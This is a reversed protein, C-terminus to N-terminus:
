LAYTPREVGPFRLSLPLAPCLPRCPRVCDRRLGRSPQPPPRSCAARWLRGEDPSRDPRPKTGRCGRAMLHALFSLPSQPLHLKQRSLRNGGLASPPPERGPTDGGPPRRDPLMLARVMCAATLVLQCLMKLHALHLFLGEISLLIVFYLVFQQSFSHAERCFVPCCVHVPLENFFRWLRVVFLHSRHEAECVM